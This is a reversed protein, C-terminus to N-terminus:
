SRKKRRSWRERIDDLIHDRSKMEYNPFAKLLRRHIRNSKETNIRYKLFFSKFRGELDQRYNQVQKEQEAADYQDAISLRFRKTMDKILTKSRNRLMAISHNTFHDRLESSKEYVTTTVLYAALEERLQHMNKVIQNLSLASQVTVAFDIMVIGLFLVGVVEGVERPILSILKELFPGFVYLDIVSLVGWFLSALLSIRGQFHYKYDSYDWWRAHFITEMLVATVYELTTAIVLGLIFVFYWHQKIPYLLLYVITGGFGYIPILPGNLFGRNVFCKKRISCSSTEWIWGFFSFILFCYFIFYVDHHLFRLYWM